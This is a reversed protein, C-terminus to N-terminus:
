GRACGKGTAAGHVLRLAIDRGMARDILARMPCAPEGRPCEFCAPILGRAVNARAEPHSTCIRLLPGDELYIEHNVLYEYFDITGEGSDSVDGPEVFRAVVRPPPRGPDHRLTRRHAPTMRRWWRDVEDRELNSLGKM